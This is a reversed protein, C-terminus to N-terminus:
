ASESLLSEVELLSPAPRVAKGTLAISELDAYAADLDDNIILHEYLDYHELEKKANDLRVQIEAEDDSKRGRLRRALEGLSPPLIFVSVAKPYKWLIQETGQWDIDLVVSKDASFIRVLEDKATGYKSTHVDANEVFQHMEEMSTFTRGNVFYYEVGHTEGKRPARTTHSISIQFEPHSAMLRRALTTKGAGSPSSIILMKPTTRKATQIM